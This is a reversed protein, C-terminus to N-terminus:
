VKGKMRIVEIQGDSSFFNFLTKKFDSFTFWITVVLGSWLGFKLLYARWWIPAVIEDVTYVSILFLLLPILRALISTISRKVITFRNMFFIVMMLMILYSLITTYAAAVIGYLPVLWINLGINIISGVLTRVMTLDTRELHTLLFSSIQDVAFILIGPLAILFITYSQAYTIDSFWVLVDKMPIVIAALVLSFGSFLFLSVKYNYDSAEEFNAAAKEFLVPNLVKNVPLLLSKNIYEAFRYGLTYIAVAELGLFWKIVYRDGSALLIAGITGPITPVGIRILQRQINLSFRFHRISYNVSFFLLAIFGFVGNGIAMGAIYSVYSAQVYTVMLYTVIAVTIPPLVMMSVNQIAKRMKILFSSMLTSYISGLFSIILFGFVPRTLSTDVLKQVFGIQWLGLSAVLFGTFTISFLANYLYNAFDEHALKFFKLNVAVDFGLSIFRTTIPTILWVLGIIGFDITPLKKTFLPLLILGSIVGAGQGVAYIAYNIRSSNRRALRM